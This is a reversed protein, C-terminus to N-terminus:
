IRCMRAAHDRAASSTLNLGSSAYAYSYAQRYCDLTKAPDRKEAIIWAFNRAASSTLNLGSSAYAYVYALKFGDFVARGSYARSIRDAFERADNQTLNLGGSSYAYTYADRYLVQDVPTSAVCGEQAAAVKEMARRLIGECGQHCSYACVDLDRELNARQANAQAVFVFVIAFLSVRVM